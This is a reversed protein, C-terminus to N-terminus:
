ASILYGATCVLIYVAQSKINIGVLINIYIGLAVSQATM